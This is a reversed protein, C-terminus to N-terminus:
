EAGPACQAPVNYATPNQISTRSARTSFCRRVPSRRPPCRLRHRSGGASDDSSGGCGALAVSLVLGTATLRVEGLM